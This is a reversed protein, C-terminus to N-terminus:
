CQRPVETRPGPAGGTLEKQGLSFREVEMTERAALALGVEVVWPDDISLETARSVVDETTGFVSGRGQSLCVACVAGDTDLEELEFDGQFAAIYITHVPDGEDVHPANKEVWKRRRDAHQRQILDREAFDEEAPRVGLFEIHAGDRM